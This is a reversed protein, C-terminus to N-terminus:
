VTQRPQDWTNVEPQQYQSQVFALIQENTAGDPVEVRKISGDPFQIRKIPM